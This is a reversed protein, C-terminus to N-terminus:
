TDGPEEDAQFGIRRTPLAGGESRVKRADAVGLELMQILREAERPALVWARTREAALGPLSLWVFGAEDVSVEVAHTEPDGKM